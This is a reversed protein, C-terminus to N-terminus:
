VEEPPCINALKLFLEEHPVSNYASKFDLFLCFAHQNKSLRSHIQKLARHINVHIDMGPVFGIQSRQLKMMLYLQLRPLLRAELLKTLPSMVVIPRFEEPKPINPYKKNLPILRAEFHASCLNNTVCPDWLSRIIESTKNKHPNSFAIDSILDFALAKNHAM